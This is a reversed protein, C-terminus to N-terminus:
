RLAALLNKHWVLVTYGAPHLVQAPPGFTRVAAAQEGSGGPNIDGTVYFDAYHSAPTYWGSNLERPVPETLVGSGAGMQQGVQRVTIRNGSDLSISNAVWYDVALGGNLHRTALWAVLSQNQAPVPPRAAHYGLAAACAAAAVALATTLRARLAPGALVTGALPQARQARQAGLFPGALLRGALVAAFPLVASIDRASFLDQVFPTPVYAAVNCIIALALGPVALEGSRGLRSVAIGLAVAAAAVGILHLAAIALDLASLRSSFEAGFLMLLGQCTLQLHHPITSLGSFTTAVPHISFGGSRRILAMAVRALGASAIAAFALWVEAWPSARRYLLVGARVACAIVMPVVGTVLVLSDATVGWTAAIAVAPVSWRAPLRDVALWALLVPVSSGFHNPSLLLTFGAGPAPALMVVAVILVRLLAERGTARGKALWAALLILLTYTMAGAFHIVGPNLGRVAEIVAYQVLEAPYFSVDSVAWHRLLVNGHLMDWAQLANSAGDSGVPVQDSLRLYCLLLVSTVLVIGAAWATRRVARAGPRWASPSASRTAQQMLAPDGPVRSSM